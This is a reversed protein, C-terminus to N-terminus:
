FFICLIKCSNGVEMDEYYVVKMEDEDYDKENM